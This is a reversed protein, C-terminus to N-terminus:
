RWAGKHIGADAAVDDLAAPPNLPCAPLWLRQAGARLDYASGAVPADGSGTCSSAMGLRIFDGALHNGPAAM